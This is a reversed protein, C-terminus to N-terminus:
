SENHELEQRSGDWWEGGPDRRLGGRTRPPPLRSSGGELVLLPRAPCRLKGNRGASRVVTLGAESPIMVIM